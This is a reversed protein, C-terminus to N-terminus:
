AFPDAEEGSAKTQVLAAPYTKDFWKKFTAEIRSGEQGQGHLLHHKQKLGMVKVKDIRGAATSPWVKDCLEVITQDSPVFQEFVEPPLKPANERVRSEGLDWLPKKQEESAGKPVALEGAMDRLVSKMGERMASPVLHPFDAYRFETDAESGMFHVLIGENSYARTTFVKVAGARTKETKEGDTTNTPALAVVNSQAM